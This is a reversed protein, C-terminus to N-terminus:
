PDRFLNWFSLGIGKSSRHSEQGRWSFGSIIWATQWRREGSFHIIMPAPKVTPKINGPHHEGTGFEGRRSCVANGKTQNLTPHEQLSGPSRLNQNGTRPQLNGWPVASFLASFGAAIDFTLDMVLSGPFIATTGFTPCCSRLCPRRHHANNHGM